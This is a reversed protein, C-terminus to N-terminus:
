QEVWFEVSLDPVVPNFTKTSLTGVALDRQYPTYRFGKFKKNSKTEINFQFPKGSRNTLVIVQKGKPTKYAMIRNDKLITSEDVAFRKSDWPMYKLFGAIANFNKQFYDWHGKQVNAFHNLNNDNEPRWVGLAFSEAEENTTPKLAHLWFWTPSNAFTMWNMITQATNVFNGDSVGDNKTYNFYEFENTFVYKGDTNGNYKATEDILINSNNGIRHLVWADVYKLTEPDKKIEQAILGLQGDWSDTMIVAEPFAEKIKPAVAKFAKYYVEPDFYDTTSFSQNAMKDNSDIPKAPPAVYGKPKVHMGAENQLGWMKVKLGNHDLFKADDVLANGLDNLFDNETSKLTGGIFSNNSKWYPALSWYELSIGEMGSGKMLEKLDNLQNPYREQFRKGEKDLGRFYLGMALRCYRFGKLMDKYLRKRESKVLNNPIAIVEDPLGINGSGIADNQIEIGLGWITQEPKDLRIIYKGQNPQQAWLHSGAALLVTLLTKQIATRKNM